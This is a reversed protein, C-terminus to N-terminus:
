NEPEVYIGSFDTVCKLAADPLLRIIKLIPLWYSSISKNEYNRRQADIISSAVKQPLLERMILPFRFKPKCIGTHVFFPYITTFKISSKGNSLIRLEESLSEM